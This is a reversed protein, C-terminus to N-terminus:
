ETRYRADFLCYAAFVALGAALALLLVPGFPQGALARMGADLGVPAAPDFQVAAAVLLGGATGGAVGLAVWGVTGLV